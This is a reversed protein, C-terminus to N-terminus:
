KTLETVTYRPTTGAITVAGTFIVGSEQAFSGGLGDDNGTGGKLVVHFVTTSATGGMNVFLTNTGLNQIMWAGRATNAALATAASAVSPTNASGVPAIIGQLDAM